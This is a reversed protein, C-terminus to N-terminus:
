KGDVDPKRVELFINVGTTEKKISLEQPLAMQPAVGRMAALDRQILNWELFCEMQYRAPHDDVNTAILLGGPALKAYFADM